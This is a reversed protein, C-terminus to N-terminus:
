RGERGSAGLFGHFGWVAAQLTEPYGHCPSLKSRVAPAETPVPTRALSARDASQASARLLLGVASV